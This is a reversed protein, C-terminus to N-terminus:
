LRHHMQAILPSGNTLLTPSSPAPKYWRWLCISVDFQFRELQTLLLLSDTSQNSLLMKGPSASLPIHDLSDDLEGDSRIEQLDFSEEVAIERSSNPSGSLLRTVEPHSSHIETSATSQEECSRAEDANKLWTEIARSKKRKRPSPKAYPDSVVIYPLVDAPVSGQEHGFCGSVQQGM